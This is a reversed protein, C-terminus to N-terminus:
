YSTRVEQIHQEMLQIAKEREKKISANLIKQHASRYFDVASLIEVVDLLTNNDVLIASLLSEEAEISQPPLHYLSPDKQSQSQQDAM